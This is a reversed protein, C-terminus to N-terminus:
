APKFASHFGFPVVQPMDVMALCEMRRPDLVALRTAVDGDALTSVLLVGDDEDNGGPRPVFLPELQVSHPRQWVQRDGTALDLRVTRDLFHARDEEDYGAGWAWRAAGAEPRGPHVQPLEFGSAM